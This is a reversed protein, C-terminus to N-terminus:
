DLSAISTKPSHPNVIVFGAISREHVRTKHGGSNSDHVVWILGNVHRKLVMAHGRRAAVMGPAPSARHFKLIWNYALNLSPIIRGFVYLSAGCGCFQYPCGAPRGGVITGRDYGRTIHMRHQYPRYNVTVSGVTPETCFIFCTEAKVARAHHHHRHHYHRPKANAFSGSLLLIFMVVISTAIKM